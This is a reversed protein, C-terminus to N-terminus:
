SRRPLYSLWALSWKVVMLGGVGVVAARDLSVAPGSGRLADAIPALPASWGFLAALILTLAVIGFPAGVLFSLPGYRDGMAAMGLGCMISGVLWLGLLLGREAGLVPPSSGSAAALVIAVALIGFLTAVIPRVEISPMRAAETGSPM